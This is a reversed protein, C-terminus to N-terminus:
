KQSSKQPSEQPSRTSDSADTTYADPLEDCMFGKARSASVGTSLEVHPPGRGPAVASRAVPSCVLREGQTPDGLEEADLHRRFIGPVVGVAAAGVESLPRRIQVGMMPLPLGRVHISIAWADPQENAAALVVGPEPSRRQRDTSRVSWKWSALACWGPALM